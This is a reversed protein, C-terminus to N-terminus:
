GAVGVSATTPPPSAVLINYMERAVYRKLCRIVEKKTKGEATRKAVYSKTPEHWRMRTLVVRHLAANAARNGGRNLRHRLQKGSSADKPSAGCLMSFAAESRLRGPNDGAAILVLAASDPGVGFTEVLRPSAKATLEALLAVHQAIEADLDGVRRALARLAHRAAATTDLVTGLRFAAAKELLAKPTLVELQERLNAPATVITAKMANWAQTRAKVASAKAAHVMRLM